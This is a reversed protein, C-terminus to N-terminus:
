PLKEVWLEPLSILKEDVPASLALAAFGYYLNIILTTIHVTTSSYGM